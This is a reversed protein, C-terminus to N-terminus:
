TSSEVVLGQELFDQLMRLTEVEIQEIPTDPYLEQLQQILAAVTTQCDCLEWLIGATATVTVAARQASDYLLWRGDPLVTANLGKAKCLISTQIIQSSLVVEKIDHDQKIFSIKCFETKTKLTKRM